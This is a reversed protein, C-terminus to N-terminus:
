HIPFSPSPSSGKHFGNFLLYSFLVLNVFEVKRLGRLVGLFMIELLKCAGVGLKYDQTTATVYEQGMCCDSDVEPNLRLVLSCRNTDRCGRNIDVCEATSPLHFLEQSPPSSRSAFDVIVGVLGNSGDEQHGFVGPGLLGCCAIVLSFPICYFQAYLSIDQINCVELYSPAKRASLFTIRIEGEEVATLLFAPRKCYEDFGLDHRAHLDYLRDFLVQRGQKPPVSQEENLGRVKPLFFFDSFSGLSCGSHDTCDPDSSGEFVSGLDLL